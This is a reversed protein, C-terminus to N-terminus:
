NYDIFKLGIPKVKIVVYNGAILLSIPPWAVKNGYDKPKILISSLDKIVNPQTILEAVGECQVTSRGGVDYITIAVKPNKAINVAKGTKDKTLVYFYNEDGLVYNVVAGNPYGNSNITSIVAVDHNLLFERVESTIPKAPTEEIIKRKKTTLGEMEEREIPRQAAGIRRGTLHEIGRSEIYKVFIKACATNVFRLNYDGARTHVIVGSFRGQTNLSIGSVFDYSIEYNIRFFPKHDMYILRRDTAVITATNADHWGYIVGKIHEDEHVVDPINRISTKKLAYKNVGVAKLEEKVRDAHDM